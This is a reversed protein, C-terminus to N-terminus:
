SPFQVVRKPTEEGPPGFRLTVTAGRMLPSKLLEAEVARFLAEADPGYMYLIGHSDDAAIENGDYEGVGAKTIAQRLLDEFAFVPKLDTSGFSFNVVVAQEAPRKEAPKNKLFLKTLFSMRALMGFRATRRLEV